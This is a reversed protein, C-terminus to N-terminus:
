HMEKKLESIYEVPNQSSFVSNGAVLIDVGCDSLKKANSLDVGGDVEILANSKKSTILNKLEKIKDYTKEIFHQGGFGPYVSMLMIVDVDSIFKEISSVPTDPSIVVGAKLGFSKIERINEQTDNRAEFHVTILSAGSDKFVKLYKHPDNIMLHVDLLKKSITSIQKTINMGFSINPVFIGDMVDIHLWDTESKNLMEIDKGLELFNAALISVSIM